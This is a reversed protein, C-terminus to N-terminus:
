TQAIEYVKASATLVPSTQPKGKGGVTTIRYTHKETSNAPGGCSFEFSLKGEPGYNGYSGVMNPNDVSLAIGTAGTVKWSIEVPVAPSRYKDTGQPCKPHKTIKFYVIHPGSSGHSGSSSASHSPKTGGTGGGTGGGHGPKSSYSPEASESSMGASASPPAAPTGGTGTTDVPQCATMALVAVAGGLAAASFRVAKRM